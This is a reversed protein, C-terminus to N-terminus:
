RTTNKYRHRMPNYKSNDDIMNEDYEEDFEEDYKVEDDKLNMQYEDSNAGNMISGYMKFLDNQVNPHDYSKKNSITPM